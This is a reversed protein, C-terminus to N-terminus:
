HKPAAPVGSGILRDGQIAKWLGKSLQRPPFQAHYKTMWELIFSAVEDEQTFEGGKMEHYKLNWTTQPCQMHASLSKSVAAAALYAEICDGRKEASMGKIIEYGWLSRNPLPKNSTEKADMLEVMLINYVENGPDAWTLCEEDAPHPEHMFEGGPVLRGPVVGGCHSAAKRGTRPIISHDAITCMVHLARLSISIDMDPREERNLALWEDVDEPHNAELYMRVYEFGPVHHMALVCALRRAAELSKEYTYGDVTEQYRFFPAAGPFLVESRASIAPQQQHEGRWSAWEDHRPPSQM